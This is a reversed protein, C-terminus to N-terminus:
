LEMYLQYPGVKYLCKLYMHRLDEPALQQRWMTM